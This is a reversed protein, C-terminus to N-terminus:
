PKIASLQRTFCVHQPVGEHGLELKPVSKDQFSQKARRSKSDAGRKWAAGVFRLKSPVTMGLSSSPFSAGRGKAMPGKGSEHGLEQKTMGKVQFSQKWPAAPSPARGTSGHRRLLAEGVLAHGLRLKPVLPNWDAAAPM